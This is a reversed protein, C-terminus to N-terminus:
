TKDGIGLLSYEDEQYKQDAILENLSDEEYKVWYEPTGYPINVTPMEHAYNRAYTFVYLFADCNSVLVGHAYYNHAQAVTINYVRQKPGEIVGLVRVPVAFLDRMSILQLSLRVIFASARQIISGAQADNPQSVDTHAVVKSKRFVNRNLTNLWVFPVSSWFRKQFQPRISKIGRSVKPLLTGRELPTKPKTQISTNKTKTDAHLASKEISQLINLPLCVSWIISKTIGQMATWMIFMFVKHFLDTIFSMFQVISILQTRKLTDSMTADTISKGKFLISKESTLQRDKLDKAQIWKGESWFPHDPTTIISEGNSLLLEVTDRRSNFVSEIPQPGTSTNVFDGPQLQEIAVSGQPTSIPTSAIFCLHNSKASNEFGEATKDLTLWEQIIPSGEVAKIYGALMDDNLMAILGKKGPERRSKDASHSPLSKRAPTWSIDYKSVIEDGIWKGLGGADYVIWDTQWKEEYMKVVDALDEFRPRTQKWSDLLYFMRSTKHYAAIVIATPDPDYGLDVGMAVTYARKNVTGDAKFLDSPYDSSWLTNRSEVYKYVFNSVHQVWENLWERRFTPHMRDGGFREKLDQEMIEDYSFPSGGGPMFWPNNRGTWSHHTWHAKQAGSDIDWFFGDCVEGTSSAVMLQGGFDKLSPSMVNVLEVVEKYFACEDVWLKHLKIGRLRRKADKSDAGYIEFKSGNSATIVGDNIKFTVGYKEKIEKAHTDILYTLDLWIAREASDFTLGLYMLLARPTNVMTEVIDAIIATTKGSRRPCRAVKNRAPDDVFARQAPGLIPIRLPVRDANSATTKAYQEVILKAQAPTLKM